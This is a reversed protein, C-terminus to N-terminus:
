ASPSPRSFSTELYRAAGGGGATGNIVKGVTTAITQAGDVLSIRGRLLSHMVDVSRLESGKRWTWSM